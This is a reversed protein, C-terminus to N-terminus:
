YAGYFGDLQKLLATFSSNVGVADGALQMWGESETLDRSLEKIREYSTLTEARGKGSELMADLHGSEDRLERVTDLASGYANEEGPISGQPDKYLVDYLQTTVNSLQGALGSVLSQSWPRTPERGADRLTSCAAVYLSLGLLALLVIRRDFGSSSRSTFGSM